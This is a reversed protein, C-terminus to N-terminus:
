VSARSLRRGIPGGGPLGEISRNSLALWLPGTAGRQGRSAENGLRDPDVSGPEGPHELKSCGGAAGVAELRSGRFAGAREDELLGDSRQQGLDEEESGAAFKSLAGRRARGPM